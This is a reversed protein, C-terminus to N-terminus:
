HAVHGLAVFTHTTISNSDIDTRSSSRQLPTTLIFRDDLSM